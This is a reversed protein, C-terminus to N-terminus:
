AKAGPAAPKAPAAAPAVATAAAKAKEAAATVEDPTMIDGWKRLRRWYRDSLDVEFPGKGMDRGKADRIITGPKPVVKLTKSM